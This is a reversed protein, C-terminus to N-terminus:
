GCAKKLERLAEVVMEEVGDSLPDRDSVHASISSFTRPTDLIQDLVGRVKERVWQPTAALEAALSKRTAALSVIDALDKSHLPAKAGRDVFASTKLLLFSPASAYRITPPLDVRQATEIAYRDDPNGTGGFHEGCSVLDFKLGAATIWRDVHGSPDNRFGMDRLRQEIAGKKTYSTTLVVGDVDKTPRLAGFVQTDTQLLPLISGGIFTVEGLLDGLAVAVNALREITPARAGQYSPAATSRDATPSTV